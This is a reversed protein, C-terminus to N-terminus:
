LTRLVRAPNGAAVSRPPVDRTVVAGAGIVAGEGITVGPLIIVRTGIWVNNGITVPRSEPKTHHDYVDHYDNDLINTFPGIHCDAGIRISRQAAISCGYGVWTRPGIELHAGHAAVLECRVTENRIIVRDGIAITGRNYVYPRATVRVYHGVSSCKRLTYRGNVIELTKLILPKLMRVDGRLLRRLESAARMNLDQAM